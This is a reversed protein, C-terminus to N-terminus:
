FNQHEKSITIITAAFLNITKIKQLIHHNKELEFFQYLKLIKGIEQSFLQRDRKLSELALQSSKAFFHFRFSVQIPAFVVRDRQKMYRRCLRLTNAAVMHKVIPKQRLIAQKEDMVSIVSERVCIWHWLINRKLRNDVLIKSLSTCLQQRKRNILHVQQRMRDVLIKFAIIRTELLRSRTREMEERMLQRKKTLCCKFLNSFKENNIISIEVIMLEVNSSIFLFNEYKDFCKANPLISVIKVERKTIRSFDGPDYHGLRLIREKKKGM